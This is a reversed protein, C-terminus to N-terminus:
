DKYLLKGTFITEYMKATLSNGSIQQVQLKVVDGANLHIIENFVINASSSNANSNIANSETGFITTSNNISLYYEVREINYVSSYLAIRVYGSFDYYGSVPVVFSNPNTASGTPFFNNGGLDFAQNLTATVWTNHPLNYGTGSYYTGKFLIPKQWVANGSADSTLVAGASPNTNGGSIKLNGDVELATGAFSSARVGTGVLSSGDVGVSGINNGYGVVGKGAISEGYVGYGTVGDSKGRVGSGGTSNSVGYIVPNTGTPTGTAYIAFGTTNLARVGVSSGGTGEGLIGASNPNTSTAKGHIATGSSITNTIKFSTTNNDTEEFPLILSDTMTSKASTNSFQAYPVTHLTDNGLVTFNTGGSADMSIQLQHNGLSWNITSLSGTINVAGSSGIVCSFHGQNDTTVIREEKYVTSLGQAIRFRLNISSNSIPQNSGSLAVGQYNFQHPAQAWSVFNILMALILLKVKNM